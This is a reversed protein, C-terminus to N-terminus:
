KEESETESNQKTMSGESRSVTSVVKVTNLLPSKSTTFNTSTYAVSEKGDFVTYAQLQYTAGPHLDRLVYQLAGEDVSLARAPAAPESLAAVRLRYGSSRGQLPPSWSM